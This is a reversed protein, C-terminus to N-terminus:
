KKVVVMPMTSNIYNRTDIIRESPHLVVAKDIYKKSEFLLGENYSAIALNYYQLGVLERLTIQLNVESGHTVTAHNGIVTRKGSQNAGPTLFQNLHRAVDEQETKFGYDRDTSELIIDKSPLHVITLVHFDFEQITYPIKLEDLILAYLATGTLCDYEGYELLQNLTVYNDYWKLNKRHIKYFLKELVFEDGWKSRKAQFLAALEEIYKKHKAIDSSDVEPDIALLLKFNDKEKFAEYEFDTDFVLVHNSPQSYSVLTSTFILIWTCITKKM